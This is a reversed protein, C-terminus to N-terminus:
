PQVEQAAIEFLVSSPTVSAGDELAVRVICGSADAEIENLMKMAEVVALVQGERVQDGVQVYPPKGPAPARCFTGSIGALVGHLAAAATAPAAVPPANAAQAEDAAPRAPAGGHRQLQIRVGAHRYDLEEIGTRAMVGALEEVLQHEM